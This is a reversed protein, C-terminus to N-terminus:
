PVHDRLKLFAPGMGESRWRAVNSLSISWRKALVEPALIANEIPSGPATSVHM